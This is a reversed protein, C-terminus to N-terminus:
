DKTYFTTKPFIKGLFGERQKKAEKIEEEIQKTTVENPIISDPVIILLGEALRYMEVSNNYDELAERKLSLVEHKQARSLAKRATDVGQLASMAIPVMIEMKEKDSMAVKFV